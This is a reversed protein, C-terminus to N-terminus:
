QVPRWQNGDWEIIEGTQPNRARQRGASGGAGRTAGSGRPKPPFLPNQEAWRVLYDDFSADIRGGNTTAYQRALEAIELKRQNLKRQIAVLQRNGEPTNGLNPVQDVVFDRDANSFGTGLSGGMADLAAQKSMANFTEMSSIGEPDMGLASGVRKLQQVTDGGAGSYFGPQSLAQDMVDLANLARQAGRAQDQMDLFHKGYGSGVTSDYAKEASMNVSINQGGLARPKGGDMIYPRTDDASIGWQQREQPTMPRAGEGRYVVSSDGGREDTRVLNGNITDYRYRPGQANRKQLMLGYADKPDLLGNRVAQALEPDQQELYQFTKNSQLAPGLASFAAGFNGANGRNGMLASAVPLAVEPSLLQRFFSPQPQGMTQAQPPQTVQQAPPQQFLQMLDLPM